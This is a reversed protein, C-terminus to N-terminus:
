RIFVNKRRHLLIFIATISFTILLMDLFSDEFIKLNLFKTSIFYILFFLFLFDYHYKQNESLKFINQKNLIIHTVLMSGMLTIIINITELYSLYNKELNFTALFVSIVSTILLSRNFNIKKILKTVTISASYLNMCNASIGSLIFFISFFLPTQQPLSKILDVEQASSRHTAIIVGAVEILPLAVLFLLILSIYVDKASTKKRFFTPFDFIVGLCTNIVLMISLTPTLLSSTPLVPQIKLSHLVIYLMGILLVPFITQNFRAIAKLEWKTIFFLLSMLIGEILAPPTHKVLKLIFSVTINLQITMWGIMTIYLGLGCLATGTKGFLLKACEITSLDRDKILQTYILALFFLFINGFVIVSISSFLTLQSGIFYGVFVTPLCCANGIQLYSLQKWNQM